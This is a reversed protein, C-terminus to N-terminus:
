SSRREPVVVDLVAGVQKVLSSAGPLRAVRIASGLMSVSREILQTTREQGPSTDIVWYLTVSLHALWLLDPLVPALKAPVAPAAGAVVDRYIQMSLERAGSSEESFPSVTAGPVIATGVFASGFGHYPAMVEIGAREVALLRETLTGGGALAEASRDRHAVQIRRYFEQVLQDKSAFWYYANSPAVGAETAIARMTTGAYGKEEFLRIATDLILQRTDTPM